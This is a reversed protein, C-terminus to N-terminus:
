LILIIFVFISIGLYRTIADLAESHRTSEQRIDLPMLSLGFAATRRITDVLRGNAVETYGSSDLSRYIIMLPDMLESTSLMPIQTTKRLQGSLKSDVWDITALLKSELTKLAERYPERVRSGGVLSFLEESGTKFSLEERLAKIDNLFLTAAMWRSLLSVELTIEPTVNPNGDRDGGMWSAIKIPAIDIPLSKGLLSKTVDDLKRLYNPVSYWLVKEVIALGSKAEDIPTPKSRRLEDTEWIATIESKLARNIERIEYNLLDQRDNAELLSKIKQHKQLM